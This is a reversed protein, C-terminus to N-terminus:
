DGVWISYTAIRSGTKNLLNRETPCHIGLREAQNPKGIGTLSASWSYASGLSNTVFCLQCAPSNVWSPMPHDMGMSTVSLQQNCDRWNNTKNTTLMSHFFLACNKAVPRILTTYVKFLEAESLQNQKLHILLWYKGCFSKQMAQVHRSCNPQLLIRTNHKQRLVFEDKNTGTRYAHM